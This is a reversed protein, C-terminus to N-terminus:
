QKIVKQTYRKEATVAELIYTGAAVTTSALNLNYYSQNIAPVTSSYVTRGWMDILRIAIPGVPQKNFQITINQYFPNTFVNFFGEAVGRILVVYSYTFKGDQDVMKLRYYNFNQAIDLDDFHYLHGTLTNGIAAVSGIKKFQQGDFSREVEFAKTNQESSTQWDLGITKNSNLHGEFSILTTPLAAATNDLLFFKSFGTFTATFVYGSGFAAVSTPATVTNGGTAAAMTAANTKAIKLSAPTNGALEAATFYLSINYTSGTNSAPTVEVVKQSRFGGSFSQWTNGAEFVTTSVCDLNATAGNIGVLTNATTPAYFYYTGNNGVYETKNISLTTEIPNGALTFGLQIAPKYGGNFQDLLANNFATACNINDQWLFNGQLTTGGDQDGLAIDPVEAPATSGNDYCVEIVLNSVGDWNYPTTLAFTNLGNVTNYSALTHVTALAPTTIVAGDVLNAVATTGMKINLNLYPRISNKQLYIGFTNIVGGTFGLANLESAKYMFQSRSSSLASNFPPSIAGSALFFAQAMVNVSSPSPLAPAADNDKIEVAYTQSGAARIANTVGGITYQLTFNEISEVEADNYIRIGITKSATAGNLFSLTNSPAAFNGNTTFDFDVGPTATNGAAVTVTINADGTPANEIQMQVTYDTYNRCGATTTTKEIKSTLATAFKIGPTTSNPIITSFIGRGHTAAALLRDSARYQLMDVRTNAFGSNTPGWNTAAGNLNDTSWIGMETALIAWDTNRPDFIVWYVPLDPLDGKNNTWTPTATLADVSELVSNAGFNSYTILVHNESSPDIAVCSVNAAPSGATKITTAIPAATHANDIRVVAGNALGFYVRNPTIPSVTVHSVQAGSFAPPSFSTFAGNTAPSTWRFYSGATNAGYLYKSADDYDTPNIFRGSTFNYPTYNAWGNTTVYYNNNVYSSIQVNGNEQDIHCFAGDGGTVTTGAGIGAANIVQTGNDQAGALFYNPLTPHLALSYYQTVNYGGNKAAWTPKSAISVNANTTYYIGGDNCFIANSSSGPQYVINHHDAHVLQASTFAPAAFLSWTSMQTWAAGNNDSRLADVGGIYLSNANNPDVAAILDYWAQGRTFNSNSGQDVILPVTRATWTNTGADYQQIDSCNNSANSHLLAYVVNANSPATALEIRRALPAPTINTWSTGNNTSRYVAGLSFIGLSCYLDGNAAIEIDAADNSIAAISGPLVNTATTGLVQTWSVGKNTSKQLGTKTCAYVNGTADVVLKQVYYFNSNNTAALQNWTTGGNSSSWIGQGRIADANFWGEGTGFYLDATNSASQAFSTIALNNFLDNVNTWIPSAVTIDNTTWLGGGVGGAWVKKYTPSGNLDFAIARTRGGINNPGREVWNIGAVPALLSNNRPQQQAAFKRQMVNQAIALRDTPVYGLSIDKTREIQFAIAQDIGDEQAEAEENHIAKIAIPKLHKNNKSPGDKKALLVVMCLVPIIALLLVQGASRLNIKEM